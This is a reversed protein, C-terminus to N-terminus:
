IALPPIRLLLLTRRLLRSIIRCPMESHYTSGQFTQLLQPAPPLQSVPQLVVLKSRVLPPLLSWHARSKVKTVKMTTTTISQAIVTSEVKQAQIRSGPKPTTRPQARFPRSASHHTAAVGVHYFHFMCHRVYYATLFM